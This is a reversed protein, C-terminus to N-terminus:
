IRVDQSIKNTINNSKNYVMSLLIFISWSFKNPSVGVYEMVCHKINDTAFTQHFKSWHRFGPFLASLNFLIVDDRVEQVDQLFFSLLRIATLWESVVIKRTVDLQWFLHCVTKFIFVPCNTVSLFLIFSSFECVYFFIAVINAKACFM